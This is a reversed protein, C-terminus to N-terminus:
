ETKRSQQSWLMNLIKYPTINLAYGCDNGMDKVQDASPFVPNLKLLDEEQLHWM